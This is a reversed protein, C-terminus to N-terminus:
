GNFFDIGFGALKEYDQLQSFVDFETALGAFFNSLGYVMLHEGPVLDSFLDQSFVLDAFEIFDDAFQFGLAMGILIGALFIDVTLNMRAVYFYQKIGTYVNRFGLLM